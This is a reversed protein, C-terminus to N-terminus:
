RSSRLPISYRAAWHLLTPDPHIAPTCGEGIYADYSDAVITVGLRTPPHGSATPMLPAQGIDRMFACNADIRGNADVLMVVITAVGGILLVAATALIAYVTRQSMRVVRQLQEDLNGSM